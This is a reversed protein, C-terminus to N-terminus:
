FCAAEVCVFFVHEIAKSFKVHYVSENEIFNKSKLIMVAAEVSIKQKQFDQYFNTVVLHEIPQFEIESLVINQTSAGIAVIKADKLCIKEGSFCNEM